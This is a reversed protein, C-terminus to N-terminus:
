VLVTLKIKKSHESLTLYEDPLLSFLFKKEDFCKDENNEVCRGMLRDIQCLYNVAIILKEVCVTLLAGGSKLLM